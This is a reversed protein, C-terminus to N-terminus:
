AHSLWGILHSFGGQRPDGFQLLRLWVDRMWGVTSSRGLFLFGLSGVLGERSGGSGISTVGGGGVGVWWQCRLRTEEGRDVRAGAGCGRRWSRTGDVGAAGGGEVAPGDARRMLQGGVRGDCKM